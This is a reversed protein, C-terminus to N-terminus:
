RRWRRGYMFKLVTGSYHTRGDVTRGMPLYDYGLMVTMFSSAGVPIEVGVGGFAGAHIRSEMNRWQDFFDGIEALDLILTPGLGFAMLPSFNNAIKGEFPHYTIGGILPLLVLNAGGTEFVRGTWTDVLPLGEAINLIKAHVLVKMMPGVRISYFAGLASGHSESEISVGYAHERFRQGIGLSDPSSRLFMPIVLPLLAPFILRNTGRPRRWRNVDLFKDCDRGM